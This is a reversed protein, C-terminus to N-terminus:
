SAMSRQAARASHRDSPTCPHTIHALRHEDHDRPYRPTPGSPYTLCISTPQALRRSLRPEPIANPGASCRLGVFPMSLRDAHQYAVLLFLQCELGSRALSISKIGEPSIGFRDLCRSLQASSSPGADPLSGRRAVGGEFDLVRHSHDLTCLAVRALVEASVDHLDGSRKQEPQRLPNAASLSSVQDESLWKGPDASSAPTTDAM